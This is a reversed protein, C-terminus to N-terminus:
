RHGFCFGFALVFWYGRLLETFKGGEDTLTKFAHFSCHILSKGGEILSDVCGKSDEVVLDVFLKSDEVAFNVLLKVRDDGLQVADHVFQLGMAVFIHYSGSLEMPVVILQEVVLLADRRNLTLGSWPEDFFGSSQHSRGEATMKLKRCREENGHSALAQEFALGRAATEADGHKQSRHILYVSEAM